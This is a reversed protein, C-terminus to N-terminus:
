SFAITRHPQKITYLPSTIIAKLLAHGGHLRSTTTSIDSNKCCGQSVISSRHRLLVLVGSLVGPVLCKPDCSWCYPGSSVDKGATNISHVATYPGLPSLGHLLLGFGPAIRQRANRGSTQSHSQLDLPHLVSCPPYAHRRAATRAQATCPQCVCCVCSV